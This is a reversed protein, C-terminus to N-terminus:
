HVRNPKPSRGAPAEKGGALRAARALTLEADLESETLESAPREHTTTVDLQQVAKGDLRDAMEKFAAIDGDAAKLVIEEAAKALYTRGQADGEIVRKAAVRLADGILKDAKRGGNNHIPAAM